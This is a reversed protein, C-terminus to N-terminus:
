GSFPSNGYSHWLSDMQKGHNVEDYRMLDGNLGMLDGNLGMLDGNLGMLDGHFGMFDGIINTFNEDHFRGM